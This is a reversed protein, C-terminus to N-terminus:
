KLNFLQSKTYPVPPWHINKLAQWRQATRRFCVCLSGGLEEMRTDSVSVFLTECLRM